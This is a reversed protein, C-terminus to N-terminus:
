RQAYNLAEQRWFDVANIFDEVIDKFDKYSIEYDVTRSLEIHKADDDVSLVAGWTGQGFLNAFLMREFLEEERGRPTDIVRADFRVANGLDTVLLNEGEEVPIKWKGREESEFGKVEYDSALQKIFAEVKM